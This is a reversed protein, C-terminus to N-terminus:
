SNLFNISDNGTETYFINCSFHQAFNGGPAPQFDASHCSPFKSMQEASSSVIEIQTLFFFFTSTSLFYFKYRKQMWDHIFIARTSKPFSVLAQYFFLFM